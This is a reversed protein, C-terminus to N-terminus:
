KKDLAKSIEKSIFDTLASSDLKKELQFVAYELQNIRDRQAFCTKLLVAVWSLSGYSESEQNPDNNIQDALQVMNQLLEREMENAFVGKNQVLTKDALVKMFQSALEHAQKMHGTIREQNAAVRQQAQQATPRKPTNDFMSPQSSVKKLGVRTEREEEPNQYEKDFSPM